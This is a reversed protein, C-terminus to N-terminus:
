ISEEVSYSGQTGGGNTVILSTGAPAMESALLSETEGAPVQVSTGTPTTGDLSLAFTLLTTGTNEMDFRMNANYTFDDVMVTAGAAVTGEFFESNGSSGSPIFVFLGQKVENDYYVSLAAECVRKTFAFCDNFIKEREQTLSPRGNLLANQNKNATKLAAALTAIEDIKVQTYDKAILQLKFKEAAAHLAETFFVLRMQRKRAREYNDAGMEKMVGLDNPFAQGFFYKVEIYKKRCAKMADDVIQTLQQVQDDVTEGSQAAVATDIADQWEDAFDADLGPDFATFDALNEVFLSQLTDSREAMYEDSTSYHRAM